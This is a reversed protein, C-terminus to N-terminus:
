ARTPSPDAGGDFVYVACMAAFCQADQEDYDDHEHFTEIDDSISGTADTDANDTYDVADKDADETDEDAYEAIAAYEAYEGSACQSDAILGRPYGAEEADDMWAAAGAGVNTRQADVGAFAYPDAFGSNRLHLDYAVVDASRPPLTSNRTTGRPILTRAPSSPSPTTRKADAAVGTQAHGAHSHPQSSRAYPPFTREGDGDTAGYIDLRATASVPSFAAGISPLPQTDRLSRGSFAIAPAPHTPTDTSDADLAPNLIRALWLRSCSPPVDSSSNSEVMPMDDHTSPHVRPPTMPQCLANQELQMQSLHERM